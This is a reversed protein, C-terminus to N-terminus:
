GSVSPPEVLGCSPFIEALSADSDLVAQYAESLTCVEDGVGDRRLEYFVVYVSAVLNVTEVPLESDEVLTRVVVPSYYGEGDVVHSM